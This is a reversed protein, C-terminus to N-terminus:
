RPQEDNTLARGIEAIEVEEWGTNLLTRHQAGHRLALSGLYIGRTRKRMVAYWMTTADDTGQIRFWPPRPANDAGILGAESLQRLTAVHGHETHIFFAAM